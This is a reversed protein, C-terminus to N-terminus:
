PLSRKVYIIDDFVIETKTYKFLFFAEFAFHAALGEFAGGGKGRVEEDVGVCPWVGTLVAPLPKVLFRVHLLVCINVCTLFILKLLRLPVLLVSGSAGMNSRATIMM